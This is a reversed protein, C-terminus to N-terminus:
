GTAPFFLSVLYVQNSEDVVDGSPVDFLFSQDRSAGWYFQVRQGGPM